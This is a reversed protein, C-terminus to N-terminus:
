PKCARSAVHSQTWHGIVGTARGKQRQTAGIMDWLKAEAVPGARGVNSRLLATPCSIHGNQARPEVYENWEEGSRLELVTMRALLAFSLDLM